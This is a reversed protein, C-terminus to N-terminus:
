KDCYHFVSALGKQWSKALNVSALLPQNQLCCMRPLAPYQPKWDRPRRKGQEVTRQFSTFGHETVSDPPFNHCTALTVEM